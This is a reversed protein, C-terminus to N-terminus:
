VYPGNKDYSIEVRGAPVEIAIQGEQRPVVLGEEIAATV